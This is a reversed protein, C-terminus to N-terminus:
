PAGLNVKYYDIEDMHLYATFTDGLRIRPATEETNNEPEYNGPNRFGSFDSNAPVDIGLSYIVETDPTAGSFVILYDKTSYRPVMVSASYSSGSYNRSTRFPYAKASPVILVGSTERDSTINFTARDRNFKLQVSDKWIRGEIDAVTVTITKHESEGSVAACNVTVSITKKAGPIISGLIGGSSGSVQTLGPPFALTYTTAYYVTTGTNTMNITFDYDRGAYIAMMDIDAGSISTKFNAGDTIAVAGINEGDTHPTVTTTHGAATIEYEDGPITGSATFNGEDDTKTNLENAKDNLNTIAIGIGGIGTMSRSISTGTQRSNDGVITGTFSGNPIRSAYLYYLKNAEAVKIVNESQRELTIAASTDKALYNSTIHWISGTDIRIWEGWLNEPHKYVEYLAGSSPDMCGALLILAAFFVAQKGLVAKAPKM